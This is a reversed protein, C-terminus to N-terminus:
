GHKFDVAELTTGAKVMSATLSRAAAEGLAAAYRRYLEAWGAELAPRLRAGKATVEVKASRGEKARRVLARSELKDLFRTLTSPSLHLAKALEGATVGPRDQVTMLLFAQNPALGSAAFCDAVLRDLARHLRATTFYMCQDLLQDASYM